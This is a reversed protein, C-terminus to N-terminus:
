LRQLIGGVRISYVNNAVQKRALVNVSILHGRCFKHIEGPAKGVQQIRLVQKRKLPM